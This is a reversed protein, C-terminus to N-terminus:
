PKESNREREVLSLLIPYHDTFRDGAILGRCIWSDDHVIMAGARPGLESDLFFNDYVHAVRGTNTRGTRIAPYHGARTLTSFVATLPDRNFDGLLVVHDAATATKLSTVLQSLALIEQNLRLSKVGSDSVLHVSAFCITESGFSIVLSAPHHLFRDRSHTCAAPLGDVRHECLTFQQKIALKTSYVVTALEIATQQLHTNIGVGVPAYELKYVCGSEVAANLTNLLVHSAVPDIAEQIFLIDIQHHLVFDAIRRATASFVESVRRLEPPGDLDPYLDHGFSQINWSAVVLRGSPSASFPGIAPM